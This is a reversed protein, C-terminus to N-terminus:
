HQQDSDNNFSNNFLETGSQTDHVESLQSCEAGSGDDQRDKREESEQEGRWKRSGVDNRRIEEWGENEREMNASKEREMEEAEQAIQQSNLYISSHSVMTSTDRSPLCDDIDEEVELFDNQHIPLQDQFTNRGQPQGQQHRHKKRKKALKLDLSAYNLDPEPPQNWITSIFDSTLVYMKQTLTQEQQTIKMKARFSQPEIHWNIGYSLDLM